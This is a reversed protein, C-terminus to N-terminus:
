DATLSFGGPHKDRRFLGAATLLRIRGAEPQRCNKDRLFYVSHCPRYLESLFAGKQQQERRDPCLYDMQFVIRGWPWLEAKIPAAYICSNKQNKSFKPKSYERRRSNILREKQDM